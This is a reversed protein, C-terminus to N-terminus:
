VSVDSDKVAQVLKDLTNREEENLICREEKEYMEKLMKLFRELSYATQSIESFGFTGSTGALNHSQIFFEDLIKKFGDHSDCNLLLEKLHSFAEFYNDFKTAYDAKLELLKKSLEQEKSM